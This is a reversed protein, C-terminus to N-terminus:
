ETSNVLVGGFKLLVNLLFGFSKLIFLPLDCLKENAGVIYKILAAVLSVLIFM